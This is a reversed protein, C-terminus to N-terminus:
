QLESEKMAATQAISKEEDAYKTEADSGTKYQNRRALAQLLHRRLFGEVPLIMFAVCVQILFDIVPSSKSSFQEGALTQIFEIFM